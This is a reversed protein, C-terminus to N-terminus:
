RYINKEGSHGMSMSCSIINTNNSTHGNKLSVSRKADNGERENMANEDGIDRRKLERACSAPTRGSKKSDEDEMPCLGNSDDVEM